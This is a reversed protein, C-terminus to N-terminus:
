NVTCTRQAVTTGSGKGGSKSSLVRRAEEEEEGRLNRHHGSSSKPSKASKSSLSVPGVTLSASQGDITCSTSYEDVNTLVNPYTPVFCSGSETSLSGRFGFEDQGNCTLCLDSTFGEDCLLEVEFECDGSAVTSSGCELTCTCEESPTETPASTSPVPSPAPTPATTPAATPHRTPRPTPPPTPRPTPAMAESIFVDYVGTLGDFGGVFLVVPQNNLPSLILQSDLSNGTDDNVGLQGFCGSIRDQAWVEILTDYGYNLQTGFTNFDLDDGTGFVLYANWQNGGLFDWPPSGSNDAGIDAFPM